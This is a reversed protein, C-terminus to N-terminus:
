ARAVAQQSKPPVSYARHSALPKTSVAFSFPAQSAKVEGLLEESRGGIYVRATDLERVKHRKLINLVSRVQDPTAMRSSGCAVSSGMMGFIVNVM